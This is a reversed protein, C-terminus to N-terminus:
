DCGRTTVSIGNKKEAFIDWRRWGQPCHFGWVRLRPGTIFLTYVPEPPCSDKWFFPALELRHAFWPSRFRIDGLKYYRSKEQPYRGTVECYEGSLIISVNFWPHDHMARDDDSRIIKHVYINFFPTRPIGYWRYIYPDKPDGIIFDPPRSNRVRDAWRTLWQLM